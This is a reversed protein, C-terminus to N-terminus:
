KGYYCNSNPIVSPMLTLRIDIFTQLSLPVTQVNSTVKQITVTVHVSVKHDGQIHASLNFIFNVTSHTGHHLSQPVASCVPLDRTRNGITDSSNKMSM